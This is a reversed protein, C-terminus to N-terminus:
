PLAPAAETAGSRGPATGQAARRGAHADGWNGLGDLVPILGRGYDSYAYLVFRVAGQMQPRRTVLGDAELQALQEDLVKASVGPLTMRLEGFHRPRDRLLWLIRTKWKGSIVRIAVLAPCDFLKKELDPGTM